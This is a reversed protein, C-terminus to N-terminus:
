FPVSDRYNMNGGNGHERMAQDMAARTGAELLASWGTVVPISSKMLEHLVTFEGLPVQVAFPGEPGVGTVGDREYDFAFSFMGNNNPAVRFLKNNSSTEDTSPRRMLEVSHHPLQDVLIGLEEPSLGFRVTKTPEGRGNSDRPIWELVVRGMGKSDVYLGQQKTARFTPLVVKLSLMCTDGYVTYQPYTRKPANLSLSRTSALTTFKPLTLPRTLYRFSLM